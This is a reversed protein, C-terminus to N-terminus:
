NESDLEEVVAEVAVKVATAIASLEAIDTVDNFNYRMDNGNRYANFTAKMADANKVSGSINSLKKRGDANLNGSITYPEVAPVNNKDVTYEGNYNQAVISKIVKSTTAM